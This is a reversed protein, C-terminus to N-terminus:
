DFHFIEGPLFISLLATYVNIFAGWKLLDFQAFYFKSNEPTPCLDTATSCVGLVETHSITHKPNKTKRKTKQPTNKNKNKNKQIM